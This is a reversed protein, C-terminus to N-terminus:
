QAGGNLLNFVPCSLVNRYIEPIGIRDAEAVAEKYTDYEAGAQSNVTRWFGWVRVQILWGGTTPNIIIRYM